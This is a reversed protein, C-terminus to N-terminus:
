TVSSFLFGFVVLFHSSRLSTFLSPPSLSVKLNAVPTDPVLTLLKKQEPPGFLHKEERL